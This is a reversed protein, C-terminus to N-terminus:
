PNKEPVVEVKEGAIRIVACEGRNNAEDSEALLGDPDFVYELRYVGDPV